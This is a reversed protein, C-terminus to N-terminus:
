CAMPEISDARNGEGGAVIESEKLINVKPKPRQSAPKDHEFIDIVVFFITKHNFLVRPMPEAEASLDFRLLEDSTNFIVLYGVPQNYDCCYRYIQHFARILYACGKSKEPSFIKADAILPHERQLSVM